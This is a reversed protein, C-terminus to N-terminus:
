HSSEDHSDTTTITAGNKHSEAITTPPSPAGLLSSAYAVKEFTAIDADSIAAMIEPPLNASIKGGTTVCKRWLNTSPWVGKFAVNPDDPDKDRAYMKEAIGLVGKLAKKAGEEDGLDLYLQPVADLARAQTPTLQDELKVVEDLASRAVMADKHSAARAISILANARPSGKDSTLPLTLADALAQKPDKEAEGVVATERRQIASEVEQRAAMQSAQASNNDDNGLSVMTSVRNDEKNGSSADHPPNLSQMGNPFRKLEDQMQTNDRLLADARSKDLEELVPLLQFLRLEYASDLAISGKSSTMSMHLPEAKDSKAESLVKDIAELVMGPPLRQWTREILTGIDDTGMFGSSGNQEFNRLAQSFITTRDAARDEPLALMLETAAHYPYDEEEAISTLLTLARDFNKRSVYYQVLNATIDRRVEPEARPLLLEAESASQNLIKSLISQQLWGKVGCAVTESPRCDEHGDSKIEISQTAGFAEQLLADRKTPDLTTYANAVQWLVFAHMEPELGAAEAQASRLLQMGQEQAPTLKPKATSPPSPKKAATAQAPVTTAPQSASADQASSSGAAAFVAIALCVAVRVAFVSRPFLRLAQRM